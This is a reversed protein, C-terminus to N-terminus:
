FNNGIIIAGKEHLVFNIPGYVVEFWRSKMETLKRAGNKSMGAYTELYALNHKAMSNNFLIVKNAENILGRTKKYNMVQHGLYVVSISYKRGNSMLDDVLRHIYKDLKPSTAGLNDCDDFIVLSDRLDELDIEADLLEDSVVIQEYEFDDSYVPDDSHRSFVHINNEPHIKSYELAYSSALTSKGAGSKGAMYVRESSHGFENIYQTPMDIMIYDKPLKFDTGLYKVKSKSNGKKSKLSKLIDDINMGSELGLLVLKKTEDNLSEIITDINDEDEDEDEDDDDKYDIYLLKDKSKGNKHRIKAIPNDNIKNFTFM